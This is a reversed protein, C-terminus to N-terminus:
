RIPRVGTITIDSSGDGSTGYLVGGVIAGAAVAGLAGYVWWSRYWARAPRAEGDAASSPPDVRAGPAAVGGDGIGVLAATPAPARDVVRLGLADALERGLGAGAAKALDNTSCDGVRFSMPLVASAGPNTLDYLVARQRGIFLLRRAGMFAGLAAVAGRDVTEGKAIGAESLQTALRARGALRLTARVTTPGARPDLNAERLEPDYGFAEIRVLHRGAGLSLRLPSDGRREGDVLVTAGPPESDISLEVSTSRVLVREQAYLKAAKPPFLSPDPAKDPAIAAADRFAQQAAAVKGLALQALGRWVRAQYLMLLDARTSWGGALQQEADTALTVADAFDLERYRRAAQDLLPRAAEGVVASAAPESERALLSPLDAEVRLRLSAVSQLGKILAGFREPPPGSATRLVEVEVGGDGPGRGDAAHAVNVAALVPIMWLAM